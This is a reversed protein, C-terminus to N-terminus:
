SSTTSVHTALVCGTTSREFCGSRRLFYADLRWFALTTLSSMLALQWEKQAVAFGFFVGAVTIAWGKVLFSDNGLRGIVSQILELHRIREDGLEPKESM